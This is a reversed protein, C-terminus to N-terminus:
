QMQEPLAVSIKYHVHRTESAVTRHVRERLGMSIEDEADQCGHRVSVNRSKNSLTIAYVGTARMVDVPWSHHLSCGMSYPYIM